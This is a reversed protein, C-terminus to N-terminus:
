GPKTPNSLNSISTQNDSSLVGDTGTYLVLLSDDNSDKVVVVKTNLPKYYVTAQTDEYIRFSKTLGESVKGDVVIGAFEFGERSPADVTVL